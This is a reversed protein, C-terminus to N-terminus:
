GVDTPHVHSGFERIFGEEGVKLEEQEEVGNGVPGEEATEAVLVAAAATAIELDM